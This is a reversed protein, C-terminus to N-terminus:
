VRRLAGVVIENIIFVAATIIIVIPFFVEPSIRSLALGVGSSLLAAGASGAALKFGVMKSLTKRGFRRPTEHMLVPFIPAHGFGVIAIGIINNTFALLAFGIAILFVAIRLITMNSLWKAFFGFLIRGAMFCGFFVTPFIGASGIYLGRSEIMISVIWHATAIEMGVYLFFICLNLFKYRTATIFRGSEASEVSAPEVSGATNASDAPESPKNEAKDPIKATEAVKWVGVFISVLVFIAALGQFSAISAYGQRWGAFLIMQTMIIPSVTAGLGFFCSTWNYQRSTLNAASYEGISNSVLSASIGIFGYLVVIILFNPAASFLFFSASLLILGLLCRKEGGIYKAINGNFACVLVFFVSHVIPLIGQADLSLGMDERIFPWATGLAADPMGISMISMCIVVLLFKIKGSSSKAINNM